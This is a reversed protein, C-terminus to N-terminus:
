VSVVLSLPQNENVSASAAVSVVPPRNLAISTTGNGSLANTATFTVSYPGPLDAIQPTWTLTGSTHAANSSFSADNGAPLGLLDWSLSGISDNDPDAASVVVSVPLGPQGTVTAPAAVLPARDVNDVSISTVASGSLTNAASFTVNYPGPADNFTPTWTLTGSTHGANPTFHANSGAPLGGLQADLSVIPNGDPDAATIVLSFAQNEVAT